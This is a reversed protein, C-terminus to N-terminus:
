CCFFDMGACWWPSVYRHERCHQVFRLFIRPMLADALALLDPPVEPKNLQAQSGHRHCFRRHFNYSAIPCYLHLPYSFCSPCLPSPSPTFHHFPFPFTTHLSLLPSLLHHSTTPSSFLLHHATIPFSVTPLPSTVIFSISITHPSLFHSFLSCLSEFFHTKTKKELYISYSTKFYWAM